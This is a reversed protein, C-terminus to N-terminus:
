SEWAFGALIADRATFFKLGLVFVLVIAVLTAALTIMLYKNGGYKTWAAKIRQGYSPQDIGELKTKRLTRVAVPLVISIIIGILVCITSVIPGLAVANSMHKTRKENLEAIRALDGDIGHSTGTSSRQESIKSFRGFWFARM